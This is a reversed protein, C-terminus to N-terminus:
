HLPQCTGRPKLETGMTVTETERSLQQTIIMAAKTNPINIM